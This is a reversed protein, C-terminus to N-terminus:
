FVPADKLSYEYLTFDHHATDRMLVEKIVHFTPLM